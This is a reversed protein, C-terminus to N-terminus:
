DGDGGFDSFDFDFGSNRSGSSPTLCLLGFVFGIILGLIEHENFSGVYFGLGSTFCLFIFSVM